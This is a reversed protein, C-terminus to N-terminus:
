EPMPISMHEAFRSLAERDEAHRARMDAIGKTLPNQEAPLTSLFMYPLVGIDEQAGGGANVSLSLEGDEAEAEILVYPQMGLIPQILEITESGSM